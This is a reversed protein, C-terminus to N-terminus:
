ALLSIVIKYYLPQLFRFETCQIGNGRKECTEVLAVYRCSSAFWTSHASFSHALDANFCASAQQSHYLHNGSCFTQQWPFGWYQRTFYRPACNVCCICMEGACSYAPRRKTTLRCSHACLFHVCFITFPQEERKRGDTVKTVRGGGYNNTCEWEPM